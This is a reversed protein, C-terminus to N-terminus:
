KKANSKDKKEFIEAIIFANLTMGKHMAKKELELHKKPSISINLKGSYPKEAPINDKKCSELYFDIMDQFSKKLEKLTKGEFTIIDNIGRVRGHYIQDDENYQHTENYGKYKM